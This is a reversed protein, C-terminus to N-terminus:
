LTSVTPFSNLGAAKSAHDVIAGERVRSHPYLLRQAFVHGKLIAGQLLQARHRAWTHLKLCNPTGEMNIKKNEIIKKNNNNHQLLEIEDM